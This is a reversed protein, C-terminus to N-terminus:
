KMPPPPMPTKILIGDVPQFSHVTVERTQSDTSVQDGIKINRIQAANGLKFEFTEGTATNKATVIGTKMDITTISCCPTGASVEPPLSVAIPAEIILAMGFVLVWTPMKRKKM